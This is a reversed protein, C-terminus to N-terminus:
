RRRCLSRRRPQGDALLRHDPLQDYPDAIYKLASLLATFFAGSIMGGLVLTIM